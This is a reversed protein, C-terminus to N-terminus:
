WPWMIQFCWSMSVQMDSDTGIESVLRLVINTRCLVVASLHDYAACIVACVASKLEVCGLAASGHTLLSECEMVGQLLWFYWLWSDIVLFIMVMLWYGSIDYGHTLLWFYLWSDIVLFIMVMLWFCSYIVVWIGGDHGHHEKTDCIMTIRLWETSRKNHIIDM